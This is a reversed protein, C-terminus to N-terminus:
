GDFHMGLNNLYKKLFYNGLNLPNFIYKFIKKNQVNSFIGLFDVVDEWTVNVGQCRLVM